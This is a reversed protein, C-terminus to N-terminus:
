CLTEIIEHVRGALDEPAVDEQTGTKRVQLELKGSSLYGRGIVVRIPFGILDADKFKSGPSEDRDDMIVDVGNALLNEHAKEAAQTVDESDSNLPMVCVQFPAIAPPWVIGNDDAFSEVAAAAIRNIGIGYCGMICPKEKGDDDLFTAELAKSYKTGLQFVHGVEIGHSANMPAMCKPCPDGEDAMRIDEVHDAEFDRGPLVGRLHADARNAGTVGDTIQKIGHDAVIEINADSSLGHESRLAAHIDRLEELEQRNFLPVSTIISGGSSDLLTSFRHAKELELLEGAGRFGNLEAPFDIDVRTAEI